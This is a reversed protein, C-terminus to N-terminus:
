QTILHNAKQCLSRHSDAKRSLLRHLIPLLSSKKAKDAKELVSFPLKDGDHIPPHDGAGDFFVVANNKRGEVVVDLETLNDNSININKMQRKLCFNQSMFCNQEAM